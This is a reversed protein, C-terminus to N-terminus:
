ARGEWVDVGCGIWIVVEWGGGGKIKVTMRAFVVVASVGKMGDREAALPRRLRAVFAARSYEEVGLLAVARTM